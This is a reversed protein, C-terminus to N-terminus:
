LSLLKGISLLQCMEIYRQPLPPMQYEIVDSSIINQELAVSLCDNEEFAFGDATKLRLIPKLGVSSNHSLLYLSIYLSIFQM